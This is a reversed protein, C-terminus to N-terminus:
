TAGRARLVAYLDDSGVDRTTIARGIADLLIFTIRGGEVKKDHGMHAILREAPLKGLPAIESPCGSAAVLEAVRAADAASIRGLRASLDAALVIGIAVSEGHLLTDGFGTEAELAHGFTHGLNLLARRGAEREDEGVIEAKMRCCHAVSSELDAPDLALVAPGHTELWAFFAADGLVGYKIM